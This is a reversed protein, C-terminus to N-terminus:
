VLPSTAAVVALRRGVRSGGCGGHTMDPNLTVKKTRVHHGFSLQEYALLNFLTALLRNHKIGILTYYHWHLQTITQVTLNYLKSHFYRLAIDLQIRHMWTYQM